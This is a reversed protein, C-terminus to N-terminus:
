YRWEVTASYARGRGTANPTWDTSQLPMANMVNLPASYSRNTLNSIGARLTLQKNLKYNAYLDILTPTANQQEKEVDGTIDDANRDVNIRYSEGDKRFIAGLELKRELLRAGVDLSYYSSPLETIDGFNFNAAAISPPQSTRERSYSLRAYVFGADYNAELEWGRTRVPSVTNTYVYMTDSVDAEEAKGTNVDAYSCRAGEKCIRFMTSSIYNDIKSRYGLLKLRLTDDRSLLGHFMSNFGLQVTDAREGKLFPNMSDAGSNAFFVEQPNPGRSTRAASAFPQFWPAVEASILLSPDFYSEKLSIDAAGQPFCRLDDRCAPKHGGLEFRTYNFGGVVNFIGYRYDLSAFLSRMEQKGAPAFPNNEIAQQATEPDDIDSFVNRVFRNRQWKAGTRLTADGGWLDFRSANDVSLSDNVNETSTNTFNILAGPMYSQKGKGHSALATLDVWESLPTYRYKLAYDDSQIDRKTFHNRYRRASLEAFHRANPRWEAKFLQSQPNQSFSQDGGFGFETSDVGSGNRYTGSSSSSSIAGVLGFEGWDGLQQRTAGAAMGSRGLGNNGSMYKARAGYRKGERLVDDVGLTRFNASGALANVGNAGASGGREVDVGVIFNPDILAGFSSTPVGGHALESPASGFYNQSVGDIMTNVRGLGSMGRINVSVAGQNPDIQTYVGPMGRLVADLSESRTNEGRSSFAGPKELARKEARDGDTEAGGAASGSVVLPRFEVKGDAQAADAALASQGCVAMAASVWHAMMKKNM